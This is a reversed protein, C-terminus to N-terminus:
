KKKVNVFIESGLTPLHKEMRYLGELVKENLIEAQLMDEMQQHTFPKFSYAGSEIVKFGNGEVLNVLSELNFNTNQQFMKNSDSKAFINEIIGMEVALLRHFSNANPVSIHVISSKSSILSITKLFNAQEQIEHLLCSIIIFDIKTGKFDRICDEIYKNLITIDKIKKSNARDEIAKEYFLVAPEVVYMKQFSNLDNFISDLGCGIELLTNHNYKSLVENIKKKRFYVQYREYPQSKYLNQYKQLDRM